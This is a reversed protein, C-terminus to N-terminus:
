RNELWVLGWWVIFPVVAVTLVLSAMVLLSAVAGLTQCLVNGIGRAFRILPNTSRPKRPYYYATLEQEIRAREINNM